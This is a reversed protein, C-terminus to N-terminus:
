ATALSRRPFEIASFHQRVMISLGGIGGEAESMDASCETMVEAVGPVLSPVGRVGALVGITVM